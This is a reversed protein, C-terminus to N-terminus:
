ATVLVGARPRALDILLDTAVSLMLCLVLAGLPTACFAVTPISMTFIIGYREWALGGLGANRCFLLFAFVFCLYAILM